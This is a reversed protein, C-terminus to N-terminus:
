EWPVEVKLNDLVAGPEAVLGVHALRLGPVSLQEKAGKGDVLIRLIDHDFELRLRRALGAAAEPLTDAQLVREGQRVSIQSGIEVSVGTGASGRSLAEADDGFLLALQGGPELDVQVILGRTAPLPVALVAPRDGEAVLTASTIGWRGGIVRTQPPLGASLFDAQVVRRWLRRTGAADALEERALAAEAEDREKAITLVLDRQHSVARYGLALAAILALVLCGSAWTLLRLARRRRLRLQRTRAIAALEPGHGPEAPSLLGAALDLDGARHARAAFELRARALGSAAARNDQWLDLADEFAHVARAFGGYGADRMAEALRAAARDALSISEQHRLCTRVASQFSRVDAFRDAPEDAMARRVVEGLEGAPIPPEIRNDAAAMLIEVDQDGPHPAQGTLIEFLIAGLLYVDSAPGILAAQARAMEPAMYIPTGSAMLRGGQSRLDAIHAALGWDFVVVEGYEGLFVNAPKLDRHIVGQGHAYAVADGVHLLVDLHESQSLETWREAWTRGRLRRMAYFPVGDQDIGAEHVPMIGPHELSGTLQAEALLQAAARPGAGPRIRKIAVERGLGAQRASWVVGMGGEGLIAQLEYDPKAARPPALVRSRVDSGHARNMPLDPLTDQQSLRGNRPLDVSIADTESYLGVGCAPCITGDGAPEGCRQCSRVPM